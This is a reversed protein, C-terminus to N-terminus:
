YDQCIQSCVSNCIVGMNVMMSPPITVNGVRKWALHIAETLLSEGEIPSKVSEKSVTLHIMRGKIESSLLSKSGLIPLYERGESLNKEAIKKAFFDYTIKNYRDIFSNRIKTEEIKKALDNPKNKLIPNEKFKKSDIYEADILVISLDHKQILNFLFPLLNNKYM